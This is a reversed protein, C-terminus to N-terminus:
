KSRRLVSWCFADEDALLSARQEITQSGHGADFDIRLLADSGAAQLKAVFKAPQWVPVRPDNMGAMLLVPPYRRHHNISYYADLAFLARYDKENNLSGFEFEFLGGTPARELFRLISVVPVTLVGGRFLEPRRVIGAGVVIGGASAGSAILHDPSAYGKEVLYEACDIFDRVAVVKDPGVAAAHWAEGRSGGGRVHAFAIVGGRRLWAREYRLFRPLYTYAYSGYAIIKTPNRGDLRLGRPHIITMPVRADGTDVEVRSVEFDAPGLNSPKIVGTDKIKDESPDYKVLQPSRTWSAALLLAGNQQEDTAVESVSTNEALAIDHLTGAAFSYRLVGVMGGDLTKIYLGDKSLFLGELIRETAPVVVRPPDGPRMVDLAIVRGHPSGSFALLYITSGRAVFDGVAADRGIVKRWKPQGAALDARPSVFIDYDKIGTGAFGWAFDPTAATMYVRPSSTSPIDVQSSGHGFVAIDHDPAAGVRHLFSETNLFRAPDERSTGKNPRWYVFSEDSHWWLYGFMADEVADALWHRREVDFIKLTANERGGRSMGVAVFRGSPSQRYYDIVERGDSSAAAKEPAVLLIPENRGDGLETMYLADVQTEADRMLFFARTARRSVRQITPDQGLLAAMESRLSELGELSDLTKRAFRNQERLWHQADETQWEELWEYDDQVQV